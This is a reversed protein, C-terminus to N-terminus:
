SQDCRQGVDDSHGRIREESEAQLRADWIRVIGDDSGSVIKTEMALSRYVASGIQQKLLSASAHEPNSTGCDFRAMM